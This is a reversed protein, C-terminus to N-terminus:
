IKLGKKKKKGFGINIIKKAITKIEIINKSYYMANERLDLGAYLLVGDSFKVNPKTQLSSYKFDFLRLILKYIRDDMKNYSKPHTEKLLEDISRNISHFSDPKGKGFFVELDKKKFESFLEKNLFYFCVYDYQRSLNFNIDDIIYDSIVNDLKTDLLFSEKSFTRRSFYDVINQYRSEDKEFLLLVYKRSNNITIFKSNFINKLSELYLTDDVSNLNNLKSAVICSIINKLGLENFIVKDSDQNRVGKVFLDKFSLLENQSM